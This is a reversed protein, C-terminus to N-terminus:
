RPPDTHVSLTNLYQNVGISALVETGNLIQEFTARNAPEQIRNSTPHWLHFVSLGLRVRRHQLGSRILRIILDSDEYGWGEYTENFGNVAIFDRRWLALHCTKAGQWHMSNVIHPRSIMLTACRNIQGCLRAQLCKLSTYDYIPEKTELVRATFSQSLLVRQGSLFCGARALERHTKIFHRTTPVCDGDLFVLYAGQAAAVAQNRIKAARFGLDEQWVHYIPYHTQTQRNQIWDSIEHKSGDDALIVEFDGPDQQADLASFILKLADLRNYITIILSLRM